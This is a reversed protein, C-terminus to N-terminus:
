AAGGGTDLPLPPVSVGRAARGPRIVLLTLFAAIVMAVMGSLFALVYNHTMDFLYGALAPGAAAGASWGIVMVGMIMGIHRLGCVDGILAAIPPDVGGYSLGFLVGFLYLMWADSAVTVLLMAGAMCLASMTAARKRGISDSVRGMVLRGIISTSGLLTVIAAAKITTMGLDTAHPVVHTLVLHICFSYMVWVFFLLWFDKGKIAQLLSFDESGEDSLRKEFNANKAAEPAKRLFLGCPVITFLAILGLVLYATRWGYESILYAALPSMIIIGLGAGSGVIALAFGRRRVFWRSATAM